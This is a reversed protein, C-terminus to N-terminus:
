GWIEAILKNQRSVSAKHKPAAVKGRIRDALRGLENAGVFMLALCLAPIERWGYDLLKGGDAAPTKVM